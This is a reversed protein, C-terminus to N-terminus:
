AWEREAAVADELVERWLAVCRLLREMDEAEIAALVDMFADTSRANHMKQVDPPVSM